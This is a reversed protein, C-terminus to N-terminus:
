KGLGDPLDHKTCYRAALDKLGNRVARKEEPSMGENYKFCHVDFYRGAAATLGQLYKSMSPANSASDSIDIFAVGM